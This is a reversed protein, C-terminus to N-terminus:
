SSIKQYFGKLKEQFQDTKETMEKFKEAIEPPINKSIISSKQDNEAISNENIIEQNRTEGPQISFQNIVQDIIKQHQLWIDEDKDETKEDIKNEDVDSNLTNDISSFMNLVKDFLGSGARNSVTNQILLLKLRENFAALQRAHLSNTKETLESNDENFSQNTKEFLEIQENKVELESQLQYLQQKVIDFETLQEAKDGNKKLDVAQQSILDKQQDVEAQLQKIEDIKGNVTSKLSDLETEQEQLSQFQLDYKKKLESNIANSKKLAKASIEQQQQLDTIIKADNRQAVILEERKNSIQKLAQNEEIVQLKLDFIQNKKLFNVLILGLLFGALSLVVSYIPNNIAIQQWDVWLNSLTQIYTDMKGGKKYGLRGPKQRLM